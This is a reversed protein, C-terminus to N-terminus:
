PGVLPRGRRLPNQYFHFQSSSIPESFGELSNGTGRANNVQRDFLSGNPFDGRWNVVARSLISRSPRPSKSSFQSDSSSFM